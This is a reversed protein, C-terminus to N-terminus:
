GNSDLYERPSLIPVGRFPSMTLLDQDGTIISTAGASVALELIKDDKPDRCERIVATIEVIEADRIFASLFELRQEEAVYRDFGPQRFVEDYESALDTSLLILGNNRARDLAQLPVSGARLAASVVVDTDVVTRQDFTM